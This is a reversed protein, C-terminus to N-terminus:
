RAARSNGQDRLTCDITRHIREHCDACLTILNEEADDGLHSRFQIHHVQLNLSRGCRQCRWGDRALVKECLRQYSEFALRLRPQKSRVDRM